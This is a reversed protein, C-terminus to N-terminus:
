SKYPDFNTAAVRQGSGTELLPNAPRSSSTEPRTLKPRDEPAVGLKDLAKNLALVAANLKGLDDGSYKYANISGQQASSTSSGGQATFGIATLFSTSNHANAVKEIFAKNNANITRFKPDYPNTLINIVYKMITVVAPINVSDFNTNLMCELEDNPNLQIQSNTASRQASVTASGHPPASVGSELERAVAMEVSARERAPALSPSASMSEGVRQVKSSDSEAACPVAKQEMGSTRAAFEEKGESPTLSSRGVTEDVDM